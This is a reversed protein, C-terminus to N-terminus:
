AAEGSREECVRVEERISGLAGIDGWGVDPVTAFGERKASPQVTKVAELFDAMTVSLGDLDYGGEPGEGQEVMIRDIARGAAERTLSRLDAGVYGPTKRAVAKFDFDGELRMGAAMRRIIAERGGEDPVGM